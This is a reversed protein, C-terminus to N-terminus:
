SRPMWNPLVGCTGPRYSTSLDKTLPDRSKSQGTDDGRGSEGVKLVWVERDVVGEGRSKVVSAGEGLEEVSWWRDGGGGGGGMYGGQGVFNLTHANVNSNWFKLLDLPNPQILASNVSAPHSNPNPYPDIM